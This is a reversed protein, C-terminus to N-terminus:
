SPEGVFTDPYYCFSLYRFTLSALATGAPIRALGGTGTWQRNQDGDHASAWVLRATTVTRLTVVEAPLLERPLGSQGRSRNDVVVVM